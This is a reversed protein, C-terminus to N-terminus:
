HDLRACFMRLDFFHTFQLILALDLHLCYIFICFPRRRTKSPEKTWFMNVNKEVGVGLRGGEFLSVFFFFFFSGHWSALLAALGSRKFWSEMASLQVELTRGVSSRKLFRVRKLAIFSRLKQSVDLFSSFVLNVRASRLPQWSQFSCHLDSFGIPSQTLLQHATNPAAQSLLELIRRALIWQFAATHNSGWPGLFFHQDQDSAKLVFVDEWTM